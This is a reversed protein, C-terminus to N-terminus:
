PAAMDVTFYGGFSSNASYVYGVGIEKMSPDLVANWHTADAAWQAMANQPSGIAIIETYNYTAYGAAAMRDGIWSGNSGTHSLFNNCAMDQSHAQAAAALQSNYSLPKLKADARAANILNM